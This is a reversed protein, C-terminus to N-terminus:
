SKLGILSITRNAFEQCYGGNGHAHQENGNIHAPKVTQPMDNGKDAFHVKRIREKGPIDNHQIAVEGYIQENREVNQILHGVVLIVAYLDNFRQDNKGNWPRDTDMSDSCEQKVTQM